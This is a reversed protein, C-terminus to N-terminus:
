LHKAFSSEKLNQGSIAKENMYIIGDMGEIDINSVLSKHCAPKGEVKGAPHNKVLKFTDVRVMPHYSEGIDTAVAPDVLDEIAFM